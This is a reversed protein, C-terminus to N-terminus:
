ISGSHWSGQLVTHLHASCLPKCKHETVEEEQPVPHADQLKLPPFLHMSVVSHSAPLGAALRQERGGRLPHVLPDTMGSINAGFGARTVSMM